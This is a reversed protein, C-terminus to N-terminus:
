VALAAGGAQLPARAAGEETGRRFFPPPHLARLRQHAFPRVRHSEERDLGDGSTRGSVVPGHRPGARRGASWRPSQGSSGRRAKARVTPLLNVADPRAQRPDHTKAKVSAGVTDAWELALTWAPRFSRVDVDALEQCPITTDGPPAGVGDPRSSVLSVAWVDRLRQPTAAKREPVAQACRRGRM